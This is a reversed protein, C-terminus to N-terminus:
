PLNAEILDFEFMVDPYEVDVRLLEAGLGMFTTSPFVDTMDYDSAVHTDALVPLTLDYYEALYQLDAIDPLEGALNVAYLFIVMLGDEQYKEYIQQGM